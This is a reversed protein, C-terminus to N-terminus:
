KKKAPDLRGDPDRDSERSAYIGSAAIILIGVLSLLQPVDGFFCYGFAVAWMLQSYMLPALRSAPMRELSKILLFHGTGALLGLAAIGIGHLPTPIPFSILLGVSSVLTGVLAVFFLSVVPNDQNSVKRTLIQYLAYCFAMSLPLGAAWSLAAGGPRLLVLVGVFGLAVSGWLHWSIKEHLLPGSLMVVILPTVFGIASADALPLFRLALFFLATSTVLLVGRAIQLGVNRTRLMASGVLPGCILAMGILQGTFRGWVLFSVPYFQALYKALADTGAFLAVATLALLIGRISQATGVRPIM